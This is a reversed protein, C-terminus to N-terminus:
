FLGPPGAFPGWPSKPYALKRYKAPKQATRRDSYYSRSVRSHLDAAADAGTQAFTSQASTRESRDALAPEWGAGAMLIGAVAVVAAKRRSHPM